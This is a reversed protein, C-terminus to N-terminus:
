IFLFADIGDLGRLVNVWGGAMGLTGCFGELVDAFQFFGVLQFFFM